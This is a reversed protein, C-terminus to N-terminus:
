ENSAEKKDNRHTYEYVDIPDKLRIIFGGDANMAEEIEADVFVTDNYPCWGLRPDFQCFETRIELANLLDNLFVGGRIRMLDSLVNFQTRLFCLNYEKEDTCAPSTEQSFIVIM